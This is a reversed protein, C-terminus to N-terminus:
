DETQQQDLHQEGPQMLRYRTVAGTSDRDVFTGAGDLAKRVAQPTAKLRFKNSLVTAIEPASLGDLGHEENAIRLIWLSRELVREAQGIQPYATRNLETLLTSAPDSKDPKETGNSRPSSRRPSRSGSPRTPASGEILLDVAKEFAAPQMVEPLRGALDGARKFIESLRKDPDNPTKPM